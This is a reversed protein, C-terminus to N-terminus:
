FIGLFKKRAKIEEPIERYIHSGDVVLQANEQFMYVYDNGFERKLESYAERLKFGRGKMGHADSAIFHTLNHEILQFTLKQVKKGFDGTVSQATVQSLAGAKVLKYLIEPKEVIEANREPHAIIPIYGATQIDFLLREAYRPVHNSPFEILFYKGSDGLTVLHNEEESSLIEGFLRIEQGPIVTVDIGQESICMNLQEVANLIDRRNNIYRGNQHHPTAIITRIGSEAAEKAMELSHVVNSPGDDVNPLIHCHIDIM